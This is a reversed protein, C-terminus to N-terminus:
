GIIINAVFLISQIKKGDSNTYRQKSIVGPNRPDLAIIKKILPVKSLEKM